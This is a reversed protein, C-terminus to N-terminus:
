LLTVSRNHDLSIAVVFIASPIVLPDSSDVVLFPVKIARRAPLNVMTGQQPPIMPRLQSTPHNSVVSLDQVLDISIVLVKRSTLSFSREVVIVSLTLNM